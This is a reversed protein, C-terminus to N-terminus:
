DAYFSDEPSIRRTSSVFTLSLVTLKRHAAQLGDGSHALRERAQSRRVGAPRLVTINHPPGGRATPAAQLQGM